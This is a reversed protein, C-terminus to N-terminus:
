TNENRATKELELLKKITDITFEDPNKFWTNTCNYGGCIGNFEKNLIIIYKGGACPKNPNCGAAKISSSAYHCHPINDWFIDQAGDKIIVDEYRHFHNFFPTVSWSFLESPYDIRIDCLSKSKYKARWKNSLGAYAFKTKNNHMYEIFKKCIQKQRGDPCESLIEEIKPKTKQQQQLFTMSKEETM